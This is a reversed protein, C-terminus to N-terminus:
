FQSNHVWCQLYFRSGHGSLVLIKLPITNEWIYELYVLCLWCFCCFRPSGPCGSPPVVKDNFVGLPTDGSSTCNYCGEAYKRVTVSNNSHKSRCEGGNWLRYPKIHSFKINKQQETITISKNVDDNIVHCFM